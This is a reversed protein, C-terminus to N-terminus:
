QAPEDPAAPAVSFGPQASTDSKQADPEAEKASDAKTDSAPSISKTKDAGDANDDVPAQTKGGDLAIMDDNASGSLNQIDGLRSEVTAKSEKAKEGSCAALLGCLCLCAFIPRM